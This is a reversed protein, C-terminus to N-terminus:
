ALSMTEDSQSSHPRGDKCALKHRTLHVLGSAEVSHAVGAGASARAATHVGGVGHGGGDLYVFLPDPPPRSPTQLFVIKTQTANGWDKSM